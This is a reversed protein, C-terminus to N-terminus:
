GLRRLYILKDDGIAYYDPLRAALTCGVKDYFLRQTPGLVRRPVRAPRGRLSEREGQSSKSKKGPVM